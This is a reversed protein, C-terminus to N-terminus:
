HGLYHAGWRSLQCLGPPHPTLGTLSGALSGGVQEASLSWSPPADFAIHGNAANGWVVNDQELHDCQDMVRVVQSIEM